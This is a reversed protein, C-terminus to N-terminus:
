GQAQVFDLELKTKLALPIEAVERGGLGVDEFVFHTGVGFVVHHGFATVAVHFPHQLGDLQHRFDKAAKIVLALLPFSDALLSPEVDEEVQALDQAKAQVPWARQSACPLKRKGLGPLCTCM